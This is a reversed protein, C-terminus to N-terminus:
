EVEKQFHAIFNLAQERDGTIWWLIECLEIAKDM